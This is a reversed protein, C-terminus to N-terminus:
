AARLRCSDPDVADQGRLHFRSVLEDLAAATGRLRQAQAAMAEVQDSMDAAGAAVTDLNSTETHAVAAMGEILGRVEVAQAAMRETAATNHQVVEGISRMATSVGRVSSAMQQSASAIEEIERVTTEVAALIERLAAGAQEARQAGDDAGRTGAQMADVAERTAAQVQQILEAIQGTERASREALKRVEDAVVAFGRGHEGARAAEIAANLALLNTQEAVEDITEVVHGIRDGLRGLESVRETAHDVLRKISAMGAITQRVAEAGQDATAETHTATQSIALARQAVRDVEAAVHEVSVGAAQVQRAQDAAGNAIGAIAESLETMAQSGDAASSVSGRAGLAAQQVGSTLGGTARRTGTALEGLEATTAAVARASGQVEGVLVRLNSTMRQFAMGLRDRESHPRITQSLDGAAMADAVEAMARQFTVMDSFAAAMQGIEDRGAPVEVDQEIEGAAIRRLAHTLRRLPATLRSAYIVMLLAAVGLLPLAVALTHNVLNRLPGTVSTQSVVSAVIWNGGFSPRYVVRYSEGNQDFTGSGAQGSLMSSGLQRFSDSGWETVDPFAREDDDAQPSRLVNALAPHILLRGNRAVLFSFRGQQDDDAQLRDAFWQLPIEFHFVGARTGDALILPTSHAIVWTKIDESFYPVTSRYVQGAPLELTPTFFPNDSEDPSLDDDTALTGLVNRAIEAGSADIVCVEGIDFQKQIYLLAQQIDELQAPDRDTFFRDFAPNQRAMLLTSSARDTLADIQVTVRENERQLQADAQSIVLDNAASLLLAGLALAMATMGLLMVAAFKVRISWHRPDPRGLVFAPRAV